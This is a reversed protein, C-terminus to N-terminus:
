ARNLNIYEAFCWECLTTDADLRVKALESCNNDCDM